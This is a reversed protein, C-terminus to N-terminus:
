ISRQSLVWLVSILATLTSMTISSPPTHGAPLLFPQNHKHTLGEIASDLLVDVGELYISLLGGRHLGSSSGQGQGQGNGQPSILGVSALTSAKEDCSCSGELLFLRADDLV